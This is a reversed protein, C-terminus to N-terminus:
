VERVPGPYQGLKEDTTLLTMGEAVAQALLMRDFPDKHLRPLGEITVAHEGTIPLELYGNDLLGQRLRRPNVRFDERGLAAKISIEWISVVSFVLENAPDRLEKLAAAPLRTSQGAAWVLLQTDLLLKL